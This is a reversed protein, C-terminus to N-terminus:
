LNSVVRVFLIVCDQNAPRYALSGNSATGFTCLNNSPAALALHSPLQYPPSYPLLERHNGSSGGNRTIVIDFSLPIPVMTSKVAAVSESPLCWVLASM